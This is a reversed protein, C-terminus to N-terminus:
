NKAIVVYNSEYGHIGAADLTAPAAMKIKIHQGVGPYDPDTKDCAIVFYKNTADYTAGLVAVTSGTESNTAIWMGAAALAAPYIDGLNTGVSATKATIDYSGSTGDAVGTLNVSEIGYIGTPVDFGADVFAYLDNLYKVNFVCQILYETIKSGDSVKFPTAWFFGGTSPIAKIKTASSGMIGFVRNKADVFYFDWAAGNFKRLERHLSLGGAVYQFNWDNFGERVPHKAGYGLTQVTLAESSDGLNELDFIPYLRLAPSANLCAALMTAEPTTVDFEYGKPALIVGVINKIDLPCSGVGTNGATTLCTLENLNAM